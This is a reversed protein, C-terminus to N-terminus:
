LTKENGTLVDVDEPAAVTEDMQMRLGITIQDGPGKMLEDKVQLLADSRRGMFAAFSIKKLVEAEVGLSWAKNTLANDTAFVQEAM